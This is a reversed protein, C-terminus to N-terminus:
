RLPFERRLDEQVRNLVGSWDGASEQRYLTMSPYWPCDSRGLLWRWDPMFSLVVWTRVGLAGSLHAISTDVSIVLDMCECLAATNAFDLSDDSFSRIMPTSNLAVLDEERVGKQLRFYEFEAALQPVLEALRITRRQDIFNRPNGSWVLGVRPRTRAGLRTRWQAVLAPDARLYGRPAPITDVTTHFALPTSMLPCQYDFPPLAEGEAIVGAVGDLGSLLETLPPQVELLVTAGAAAGSAAYRCFQLTDGLGGESHLLLTKGAISEAGLWLPHELHRPAGIALRQANRWRWEFGRWGNPFDGLFLSTLARNYQADSFQPDIAIARDYSSLAEEWRSCEQLLLARNCHTVADRPDLAIARDYSSLAAGTLGLRQQVVGRNCYAYAYEPNREIARDYDAIAAELRGLDKLANARKYYPEAPGPDIAIARDYLQIARHFDRGKAASAAESRLTDCSEPEAPSPTRAKLLKGLLSFM